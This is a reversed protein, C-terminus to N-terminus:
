SFLRQFHNLLQFELVKQNIFTPFNLAQCSFFSVLHKVKRIKTVKDGNITQFTRILHMETLIAKKLELLYQWYTVRRSECRCYLFEQDFLYLLDNRHTILFAGGKNM